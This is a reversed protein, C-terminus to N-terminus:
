ARHPEHACVRSPQPLGVSLHCVMAVDKDFGGHKGNYGAKGSKVSVRLATAFGHSTRPCNCCSQRDSAGDNAPPSVASSLTRTNGQM